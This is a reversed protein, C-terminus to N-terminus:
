PIEKYLIQSLDYLHLFLVTLPIFIVAMVM